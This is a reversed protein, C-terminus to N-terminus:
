KNVEIKRFMNEILKNSERRAAMQTATQRLLPTGQGIALESETMTTSTIGDECSDHGGNINGNNFIEMGDSSDPSFMGTELLACRELCKDYRESLDHM